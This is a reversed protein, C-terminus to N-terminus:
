KVKRLNSMWNDYCIKLVFVIEIGIKCIFFKFGIFIWYKIWLWVSILNYFCFELGRVINKVIIEYYM